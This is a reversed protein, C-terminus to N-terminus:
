PRHVVVNTRAAKDHIAQKRSDWLPWLSDLLTYVQVLYQIVPVPGVVGVGYQTAWRVVAAGVPVRGPTERLRVRMGLALKGPTAQKWLLFGVVYVFSVATGILSAVWLDPLIERQLEMASPAVGGRDIADLSDDFWAAYAHFADSWFPWALAIGIPLLILGDIVSAGVRRWWGALEQGDPTTPPGYAAGYAAGGPRIRETWDDGDFYRQQRAGQPDPYWGPPATESM